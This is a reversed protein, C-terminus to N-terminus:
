NKPSRAYKTRAFGSPVLDLIDVRGNGDVDSQLGDGVRGFDRIVRVLDLIDANGHGDVDWPAVPGSDDSVTLTLGVPLASGDLNDAFFVATYNSLMTFQNYEAVYDDTEGARYDSRNITRAHCNNYTPNGM